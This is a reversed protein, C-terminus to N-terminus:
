GDGLLSLRIAVRYDRYSPSPVIKNVFKEGLHGGHGERDALYEFENEM